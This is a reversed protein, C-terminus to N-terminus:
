DTLYRAYEQVLAEELVDMETRNPFQTSLYEM